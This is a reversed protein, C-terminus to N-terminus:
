PRSLVQFLKIAFGRNRCDIRIIKVQNFLFDLLSASREEGLAELKERLIVATNIFKYKPEEDTRVQYKYPRKLTATNGSLILEEFDSQHQSHTYLKGHFRHGTQGPIRM